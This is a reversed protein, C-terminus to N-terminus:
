AAALGRVTAGTLPNRLGFRHFPDHEPPSAGAHLDPESGPDADSGSDGHPSRVAAAADDSADAVHHHT